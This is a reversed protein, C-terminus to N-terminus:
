GIGCADCPKWRSTQPHGLLARVGLNAMAARHGKQAARGFLAAGTQWDVPAPPDRHVLLWGMQFEAVPDGARAAM